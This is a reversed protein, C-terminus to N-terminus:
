LTDLVITPMSPTQTDPNLFVRSQVAPQSTRNKYSAVVAVSVSDAQDLPARLLRVTDATSTGFAKTKVPSGNRVWTFSHLVAAGTPKAVVGPQTVRVVVILSDSTGALATMTTAGESSTVLSALVPTSPKEVTPAPPTCAILAALATLVLYKM